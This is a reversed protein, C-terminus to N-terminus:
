FNRKTTPKMNLNCPKPLLITPTSISLLITPPSNNQTSTFCVLYKGPAPLSIPPSAHVVAAAASASPLTFKLLLKSTDEAMQVVMLGSGADLIDEVMLCCGPLLVYEREASGMASYRQIDRASQANITFLCRPGSKGMFQPNELVSVHSATSSVAWWVVPKGKEFKQDLTALARNM